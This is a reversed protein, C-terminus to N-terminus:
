TQANPPDKGHLAEGRRQRQRAADAEVRAAVSACWTRYAAVSACFAECERVEAETTTCQAPRRGQRLECLCTADDTDIAWPCYSQHASVSGEPARGTDAPKEM